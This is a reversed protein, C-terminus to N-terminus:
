ACIWSCYRTRWKGKVNAEYQVVFGIIKGKEKTASVRLRDEMENSLSVLFSFQKKM